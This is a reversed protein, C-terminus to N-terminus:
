GRGQRRLVVASIPAVTLGQGALTPLWRELEELTRDHPHGIAVAQGNRRAIREIDALRARVSGAVQEHDIFVDRSASPLRLYDAIAAAVTERTTRSDVFLLGLARLEELVALMAGPDATMRSGMHNNVGVYGGFRQLHLALRRLLEPRALRTTLADPGPNEQAAVPEMPLHVMLEHGRRRAEEAQRAVEPAYPLFSITLPGPLRLARATRARDMGADDIIVAVLKLEPRDAFPVANVRWAAAPGDGPRETGDLEPGPTLAALQPGSPPPVPEPPPETEVVEPADVFERSTAVAIEGPTEGAAPEVLEPLRARWSAPEAPRVGAPAADPIAASMGDAGLYGVAGGLLLAALAIAPGTWRRPSAM